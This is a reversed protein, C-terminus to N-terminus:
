ITAAAAILVPLAALAVTRAGIADALRGGVQMSLIGAIGACFLLVAVQTDSIELKDRLSPLAGGNGGLLMGNVAFLTTVAVTATRSTLPASSGTSTSPLTSTAM